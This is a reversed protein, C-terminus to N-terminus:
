LSSQVPRAAGHRVEQLLKDALFDIGMGMAVVYDFGV